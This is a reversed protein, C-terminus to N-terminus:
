GASVELVWEEPQPTAAVLRLCLRSCRPPLADAPREVWRHNSSYNKLEKGDASYAILGTPGSNRFREEHWAELVCLNDGPQGYPCDAAQAASHQAPTGYDWGAPSRVIDRAEGPRPQLPRRLQMTGTGLALLMQVEDNTCILTRTTPLSDM